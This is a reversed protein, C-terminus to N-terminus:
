WVITGWMVVGRSVGPPVQIGYVFFHSDVCVGAGWVCCGRFIFSFIYFCGIWILLGGVCMSGCVVRGFYGNCFGFESCLFYLSVSLGSMSCFGFVPIGGISILLGGVCVCM